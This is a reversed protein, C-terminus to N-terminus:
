RGFEDVSSVGPEVAGPSVQSRRDRLTAGGVGEQGRLALRSLGTAPM